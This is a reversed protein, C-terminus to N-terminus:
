IGVGVMFAVHQDLRSQAMSPPQGLFGADLAVLAQALHIVLLQPLGRHVGMVADQELDGQVIGRGRVLDERDQHALVHLTSAAEDLAVGAVNAEKIDLLLGCRPNRTALTKFSVTARRWVSLLVPFYPCRTVSCGGIVSVSRMSGTSM